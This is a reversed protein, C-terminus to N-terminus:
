HGDLRYLRENTRAFAAGQDFALSALGEEDLRGEGVVGFPPTSSLVLTRGFESTAYLRRAVIALSPFVRAHGFDLQKTLLVRGEAADLVSLLGDENMTFLRGDVLAPSAFYRHRPLPVSWRQRATVTGPGAEELRYALCRSEWPADTGVTGAFYVDAGDALASAYVLTSLGQALVAGDSARVIFGRPTVIVETQGVRTAVPSGFDLYPVSVWATRGDALELAHLRGLPVILRGGAILLSAAQGKDFGYMSRSERPLHRAWQLRGDLDLAAVVDNGFLAYVNRGDTVPTSSANGVTPIDDPPRFRAGQEFAIRDRDVQKSLAALRQQTDPTSRLKRAERRLLDLEARTTRWRREAEAAEAAAKRAGEQEHAPLTDLFGADHRWLLRGSSADYALLTTPEATVFVRGAAVVPSANGRAPLPAVWTVARKASWQIPGGGPFRGSGDFRFGVAGAASVLGCALGALLVAQQSARM